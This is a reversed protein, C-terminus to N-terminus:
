LWKEEQAITSKELFQRRRRVSDKKELSKGGGNLYTHYSLSFMHNKERITTNAAEEWERQPTEHLERGGVEREGDRFFFRFLTKGGGQL